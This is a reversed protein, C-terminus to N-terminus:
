PFFKDVQQFRYDFIHKLQNHVYLHDILVGLPGWGVSYHVIDTMEVGGEVAKFHHQHHWFAYPGFRQEDVFFQQHECHTIETTWSFPINLFPKIRYQIILGAHMKQEKLDSLIDFSLEPPTIANLNEPNSFFSWVKEIDAAIFQKSQIKRIKMGRSCDM